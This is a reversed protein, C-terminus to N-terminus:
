QAKRHGKKVQVINRAEVGDARRESRALPQPDAVSMVKTTASWPPRSASASIQRKGPLLGRPPPPPSTTQAIAFSPKGGPAVSRSGQSPGSAHSFGVARPAVPPGKPQDAHVVARRRPEAGGEGGCAHEEGAEAANHQQMAVFALGLRAGFGRVRPSKAALRLATLKKSSGSANSGATSGRRSKSIPVPEHTDGDNGDDEVPTAAAQMEELTAFQPTPGISKSGPRAPSSEATRSKMSHTRAYPASHTRELAQTNTAQIDELEKMRQHHDWDGSHQLRAATGSKSAAAKQSSGANRTAQKPQTAQNAQNATTAGGSVRRPPAPGEDRDVSRKISSARPATSARTLASSAPKSPPIAVTSDGVAVRRAAVTNKAVSSTAGSVAPAGTASRMASKVATVVHTQTKLKRSMVTGRASLPATRRGLPSAASSGRRETSKVNSSTRTVLTPATTSTETTANSLVDDNSIVRMLPRVKHVAARVVVPPEPPVVVHSGIVRGDGGGHSPTSASPPSTTRSGEGTLFPLKVFIPASGDGSQSAAITASTSLGHERVASSMSFSAMRDLVSAQHKGLGVAARTTTLLSLKTTLDRMTKDQKALVERMCDILQQASLNGIPSTAHAEATTTSTTLPTGASSLNRQFEASSMNREARVTTIALMLVFVAEPTKKKKHACHLLSDM